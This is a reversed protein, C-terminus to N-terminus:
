RQELLADFGVDLCAPGPFDHALEFRQDPLMREPLPEPLLQHERQVPRPPLRLCEVGELFPAAHEDLLEPDVRARAQLLQM